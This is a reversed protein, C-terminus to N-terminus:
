VAQNAAGQQVMDRGIDRIKQAMATDSKNGISKSVQAKSPRQGYLEQYRDSIDELSIRYYKLRDSLDTKLIERIHNETAVGDFSKLGMIRGVTYQVGLPTPHTTDCFYQMAIQGAKGKEFGLGWEMAFGIMEDNSLKNIFHRQVRYGIERGNLIADIRASEKAFMIITFLHPRGPSSLEHLKKLERITAESMDQSEDVVLIIKKKERNARILLTQLRYYRTEVDQPAREDRSLAHIMRKMIVRLRSGSLVFGPQQLVVYNEPDAAWEYVLFDKMYTKGAGVDGQILLWSKNKVAKTVANYIARTNATEIFYRETQTNTQPQM